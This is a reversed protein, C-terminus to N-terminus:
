LVIVTHVKKWGELKPYISYVGNWDKDVISFRSSPVVLMGEYAYSPFTIGTNANACESDDNQITSSQLPLDISPSTPSTGSPQDQVVDSQMGYLARMSKEAEYVIYVNCFNTVEIIGYSGGVTFKGDFFNLDNEHQKVFYMKKCDEESNLKVCHQVYLTIANDFQKVNAQLHYISSVIHAGPRLQSNFPLYSSVAVQLLLNSCNAPLYAQLGYNKWILHLGAQCDFSFRFPGGIHLMDTPKFDPYNVVKLQLHLYKNILNTCIKFM